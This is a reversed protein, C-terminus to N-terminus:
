TRRLMKYELSKKVSPWEQETISFVVSDRYTGDTNIRHNRLVGDQRAGLKEIAERSKLNFWNTKFEVAICRMKEFAYSLMLYKCETNAGTRQYSQAYWTYGIEVRRNEVDIFCFRTCGIIKGSDKKIIVFPISSQNYRQHIADQVYAGITEKSPVSTYWLEWLKGDEAAKLLENQHEEQLPILRILNGELEQAAANELM